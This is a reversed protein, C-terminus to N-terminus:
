ITVVVYNMYRSRRGGLVENRVSMSRSFVSHRRQLIRTSSSNPTSAAGDSTPSPRIVVAEPTSQVGEDLMHYISELVVGLCEGGHQICQVWTQSSCM